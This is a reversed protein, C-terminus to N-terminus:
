KDAMGNDPREDSYKKNAGGKFGARGLRREGRRREWAGTHVEPHAQLM